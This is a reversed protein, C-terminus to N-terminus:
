IKNLLKPSEPISLHKDIHFLPSLFCFLHTIDNNFVPFTSTTWNVYQLISQNM